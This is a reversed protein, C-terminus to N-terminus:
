RLYPLVITASNRKAVFADFEQKGEDEWCKWHYWSTQWGAFTQSNPNIVEGCAICYDVVKPQEYDGTTDRHM